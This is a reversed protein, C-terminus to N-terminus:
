HGFRFIVLGVRLHQGLVLHVFRKGITPILHVTGTRKEVQVFRGAFPVHFRKDLAQFSHRTLKKKNM